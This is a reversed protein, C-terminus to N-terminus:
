SRGRRLRALSLAGAVLLGAALAILGYPPVAPVATVVSCPAWGALAAHIPERLPEADDAGFTNDVAPNPGGHIFIGWVYSQSFRSTGDCIPIDATGSIARYELCSPTCWTDSGAKYHLQLASKFSAIQSASLGGISAAEQDIMPNVNSLVHTFDGAAAPMHAYLTAVSASTLLNGDAIGEYIKAVDSLTMQNTIGCGPYITLNTSTMGLSQATANIAAFGFMDIFMRTRVNDSNELMATLASGITETGTVTTNVPCSSGDPNPAYTNVTQTLSKNGLDVQKMLHLAVLIKISSAPDYQFNEQLNALVPGDVQKLYLGTEAPTGNRLLQGVRSTEANSNNVMIVTQFRSGGSFYSKVDLIRAGNQSWRDTVTNIDVGFYWWWLLGPPTPLMIVNFASGTSDTPELNILFANNQQLFSSVQSASIGFYWWWASADAGTNSIMVAAYQTPGSGIKYQHLDILRANNQTLLTSIQDTTAGFYWWWTKADVGTNPLLIAAFTPAGTGSDYVDLDIIRANLNTIQQSLQDGTLGYFWYWGKAYSGTNSVMAVTFLLPSASEVQISVLRANNASLFSSVQAPTIGVYWWWGTPTTNLAEGLAAPARRHGGLLALTFTIAILTSRISKALSM